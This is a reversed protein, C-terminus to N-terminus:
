SFMDNFFNVLESADLSGDKRNDYRSFIQDIYQQLGLEDMMQAM